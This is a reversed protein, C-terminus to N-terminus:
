GKEKRAQLMAAATRYAANAWAKFREEGDEIHDWSRQIIGPLAAMAFQDDLTLKEAEREQARAQAKEQDLAKQAAYNGPAEM